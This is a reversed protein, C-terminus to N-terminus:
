VIISLPSACLKINKKKKRPKPVYNKPQTTKTDPIPDNKPHPLNYEEIAINVVRAADEEYTFRGLNTRKNNITVRAIWINATSCWAVGYYGATEFSTRRSRGSINYDGYERYRKMSRKMKMGNPTYNIPYHTETDPICPNVDHDRGLEL